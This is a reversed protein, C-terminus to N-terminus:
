LKLVQPVSIIANRPGHFTLTGSQGVHLLIGLKAIAKCVANQRLQLYVCKIANPLYLEIGMHVCEGYCRTDVEFYTHKYSHSMLKTELSGTNILPWVHSAEDGPWPKMYVPNQTPSSAPHYCHYYHAFACERMCLGCMLM